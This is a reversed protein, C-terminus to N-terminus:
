MYNLRKGLGETETQFNKLEYLLGKCNHSSHEFCTCYKSIAVLIIAKSEPEVAGSCSCHLQAPM